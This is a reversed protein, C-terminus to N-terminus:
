YMKSNKLVLFNKRRVKFALILDFLVFIILYHYFWLFDIRRCRDFYINTRKDLLNKKEEWEFYLVFWSENSRKERMRQRRDDLKNLVLINLSKETIKIQKNESNKYKLKKKQKLCNAFIYIYINISFWKKWEVKPKSKKKKYFISNKRLFPCIHQNWIVTQLVYAYVM